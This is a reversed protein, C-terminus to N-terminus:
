WYRLFITVLLTVFFPIKVVRMGFLKYAITCLALVVLAPYCIEVAPMIAAMIGRFGLNAMIGTTIITISLAGFYHLKGQFIETSLYEAFLTSMGIATALCSIAVTINALLGLHQGLIMPALTNLLEYKDVGPLQAAYMAAVICFGAYVLGLLIAAIFGAQLGVRALSRENDLEGTVDNKKLGAIILGALLIMAFLDLTGYGAFLGTLVMTSAPVQSVPFPQAVWLGKIIIAFLLSLKIPGLYRGLLDIVGTQRMTAIFIILVSFISFVLISCGPVYSKIAAYSTAVCRPIAGFPGVLIMGIVAIIMGPVKGVRGLLTKYGGGCLIAAILGVLPILVAGIIFGALAYGVMNGADRGLALSLVVNGAGFLIAFLAIGASLIKSFKM